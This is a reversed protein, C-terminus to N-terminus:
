SVVPAPAPYALPLAKRLGARFWRDADFLTVLRKDVARGRWAKAPARSILYDGLERIVANATEHWEVQAAVVETDARLGAVWTRFRPDLEAFASEIARTRPGEREDRGCGAAAALDRALGGLAKAASEAAAVCSVAVGALDTADQRLLIPHLSLADDIIDATTSSQAGYTMGITRVRVALDLGIENDVRGIWELVTPSLYAAADTSQTARAGPLLSQLGRWIAREPEHERPMYVLAVGLKKEQAQSRRWATHPEVNHRNQPTAREGNCILVGVVREGECVLRIRRSQWTYLDVPGTAARGGPEEEAPGVPPREWVPLDEDARRALAGYDRSILNLLLTQKLTRGEPLVGGLLGSWGVGIPYGKGGKVRSDGVAGSKIGSPDFAQAHVVWRAAEAFSLSLRGGLRTTFFPHGNPVDAILKSLESTEQKATHLGAVQFFPTEPHLLDFRDGHRRLYQEITDAPLSDAEWLAEWEDIDRPGRMAGHLVGLLLRSLAFVQTPVDGLLGTLEHARRFVGALSLQETTGATTRASLWPQSILDFSRRDDESM